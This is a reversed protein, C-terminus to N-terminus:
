LSNQPWVEKRTCQEDDRNWSWGGTGFRSNCDSTDICQNSTKGYCKNAERCFPNTECRNNGDMKYSCFCSCYGLYPTRNGHENKCHVCRKLAYHWGQPPSCRLHCQGDRWEARVPCRYKCRWFDPNPGPIFNDGCTCTSGTAKYQEGYLSQDYYQEPCINCTRDDYNYYPTEPPCKHCGEGARPHNYDHKDSPCQCKNASLNYSTTPYPCRHCKPTHDPRYWPRNWPPSGRPCYHCKQEQKWLHPKIQGCGNGCIPNGSDDIGKLYQDGTCKLPKILLKCNGGSANCVKLIAPKSTNTHPQAKIINGINIQNNGNKNPIQANFGIAINDTGAENDKGAEFGLFTNRHGTTTKNGAYAGIATNQIGTTNKFGAYGGLFTNDWGTTNYYGAGRGIYTNLNGTTNKSGTVQGIFTNQIGTTNSQGASQGIFVNQNGQTTQRGADHGLFTNQIGVTNQTGADHGLFTNYTGATNHKGTDHGVFTNQVGTTNSQGAAYGIFTNHDGTNKFGSYYGLFTNQDGSSNEFGSAM